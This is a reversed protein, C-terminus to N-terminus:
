YACICCGNTCIGDFGGAALCKEDCEAESSCTGLYTPPDTRCVNTEAQSFVSSVGFTLSAALLLGFTRAVFRNEFMRM